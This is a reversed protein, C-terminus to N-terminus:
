EVTSKEPRMEIKVDPRGAKYLIWDFSENIAEYGCAVFISYQYKCDPNQLILTGGHPQSKVANIVENTLREAQKGTSLMAASKTYVSSVSVVLFVILCFKRLADAWKPLEFIKIFLLAILGCAFPLLSYVYLESVHNFFVTPILLASGILFFWITIRILERKKYLVTILLLFMILFYCGVLLLLSFNKMKQAIFIQLTSFPNLATFWLIAFNVPARFLNIGFRGSGGFKLSPFDLVHRAAVYGVILILILVLTRKEKNLKDSLLYALFLVPFICVSTEKWLLAIVVCALGLIDRKIARDWFLFIFCSIYTFLVGYIQSLTDISAVPHVAAPHISFIIAAIAGIKEDYLKRFIFFILIALLLHGAVTAFHIPFPNLAWKKQILVLTTAELPRWAYANRPNKHLFYHFSSQPQPDFYFQYDDDYYPIDKICKLWLLSSGLLFTVLLIRITLHSRM